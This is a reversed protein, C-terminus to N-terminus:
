QTKPKRTLYVMVFGGVFVGILTMGVWGSETSSGGSRTDSLSPLSDPHFLQYFFGSHSPDIMDANWIGSAVIFTLYQTLGALLTGLVIYIVRSGGPNQEQPSGAEAKREKEWGLYVGGLPLLISVTLWRSSFSTDSSALWWILLSSLLVGVLGLALGLVWPRM